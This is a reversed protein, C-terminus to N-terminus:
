ADWFFRARAIRQLVVDFEFFVVGAHVTGERRLTFSASVNWGSAVVNDVTLRAYPGLATLLREATVSEGGVPLEVRASASAFAALVRDADRADLADILGEVRAIGARRIGTRCGSGYAKAGNFGFHRLLGLGMNAVTLRGRLGQTALQKGPERADWHAFLHEIRLAGDETVLAYRLHAPIRVEAGSGFRTHIVVDRVVEDGVVIDRLFDMRVENKAIFANWFRELDDVKSGPRLTHAGKECPPIGVPDEARGHRAFLALWADRDHRAVAEPSAAATALRLARNDASPAPDPSMPAM